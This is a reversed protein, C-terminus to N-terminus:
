QPQPKLIRYLQFRDGDVVLRLRDPDPNAAEDETFLVYLYDFKTWNHWYAPINPPALEEAVLLLQSVFPPTGDHTDVWTTYQPKVHLIQKGVVTFATTVLAQREIM